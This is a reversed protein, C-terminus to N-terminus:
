YKYNKVIYDQESLNSQYEGLSAESNNKALQLFVKQASTVNEEKGNWEALVPKQLARGYSFSLTWPKIAQIKNIANLNISSKEESQGGSLFLIGPIASPICRSLTRITMWAIDVPEVPDGEYSSGPLVMNPKLIMGELLVNYDKLYKIVKTHVKETVEACEDISHSGKDLIEPEVIPVIGNEQCIQAYRALLKANEKIAFNSPTNSTITFVARWKAFRLGDKYYQNCRKGLEDLGQTTVEGKTGGLDATGKDVKIGPLIGKEQIVRILPKHDKTKQTLTEEFLIVGSIYKEIDETTLLLERYARRNEENNDLQIDDFRDKITNISEDAALIGKGPQSLIRANEILERVYKGKLSVSSSSEM